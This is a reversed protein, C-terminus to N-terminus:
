QYSFSELRRVSIKLSIGFPILVKKNKKPGLHRRGINVGGGKSPLFVWIQCKEFNRLFSLVV